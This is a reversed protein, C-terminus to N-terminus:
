LKKERVAFNSIDKTNILYYLTLFIFATSKICVGPTNKKLQRFSSEKEPITL